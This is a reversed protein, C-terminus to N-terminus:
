KMTVSGCQIVTESNKRNPFKSYFTTMQDLFKLVVIDHSFSLVLLFFNLFRSSFSSFLFLRLLTVLFRLIVLVKPTYGGPAESGSPHVGSTRPHLAGKARTYHAERM